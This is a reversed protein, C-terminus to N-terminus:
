RRDAIDKLERFVHPQDIWEAVEAFGTATLVAEMM